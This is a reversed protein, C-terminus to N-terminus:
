KARITGESGEPLDLIDTSRIEDPWFMTELILTL